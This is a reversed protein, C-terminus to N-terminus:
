TVDATDLAQLLESKLDPWASNEIKTKQVYVDVEDFIALFLARFAAYPVDLTHVHHPLSYKLVIEIEAPAEYWSLVCFLAQEVMSGELQRLDSGAHQVFLAKGEPCAKYFREMASPVIDGMDDALETFLDDIQEQKESLISNSLHEM